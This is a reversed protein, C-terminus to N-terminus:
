SSCRSKDVAASISRWSSSKICVLTSVVLAVVSRSSSICFLVIAVPMGDGYNGGTQEPSGGICVSRGGIQQKSRFLAMAMVLRLRALRRTKTGNALNAAGTLQNGIRRKSGQQRATAAIAPLLFIITTTWRRRQTGAPWRWWVTRWADGAATYVGM